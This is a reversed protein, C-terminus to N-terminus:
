KPLNSLLYNMDEQMALLILREDDSWSGDLEPEAVALRLTVEKGKSDKVTAAEIGEDGGFYVTFLHEAKHDGIKASFKISYGNKESVKTVLYKDWRAPYQLTGYPTDLDSPTDDEPIVTPETTIEPEVFEMRALVENLAEQMSFVMNIQSTTWDDGPKIEASKVAVNVLKGDPAKVAGIGDEGGFLFRFLEVALGDEVTCSFIVKYVDGKVQEVQLVEEWEGPFYLTCYPTEIEVDPTEPAIEVQPETVEETEEPVPESPTQMPETSASPETSPETPANEPQNGKILVALLILLAVLIVSLVVILTKLTKQKKM